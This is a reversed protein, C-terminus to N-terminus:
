KKYKIINNRWFTEDEDSWKNNKKLNESQLLPQLNSWHCCEYVSELKTFDFKSVPKIHDIHINDIEMDKTMKSLIYKYFEEQSCGLYDITNYNKGLTKLCYRTRGRLLNILYYEPKCIKCDYIRKSHECIGKGNCDKCTYKQKKHICIDTGQCDKCMKKLKKHECIQTGECEICNWKLKKHECISKNGCEICVSRIKNHVCISGGKCERCLSKIKNHECISGGKCERCTTKRCKHICFHSPTCLICILKKHECGSCKVCSDKRKSHECLTRTKKKNKLQPNCSRCSYKYKNHECYATPNCIRCKYKNKDHECKKVM